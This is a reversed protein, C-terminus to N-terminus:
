LSQQEMHKSYGNGSHRQRVFGKEDKLYWNIEEFFSERVVLVITRQARVAGQINVERM